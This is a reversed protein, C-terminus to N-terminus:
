EGRSLYTETHASIVFLTNDTTSIVMTQSDPALSLAKVNNHNLSVNAILHWENADWIRINGSADVTMMLQQNLLLELM